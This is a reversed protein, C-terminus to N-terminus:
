SQQRIFAVTRNLGEQLPVTPTWGLGREAKSIDLYIGQIDGMKAPGHQPAGEYGTANRIAQWIQLVTTGKGNGINYATAQGNGVALVNARACDEVYIFDREQSGDGNITPAEGNLMQGAFIAVVGAEGNPDQRPGYVNAYRLVTYALGYNEHYLHLFHEVTHKTVGYPSLPMIPHNEDCPMYQPEGYIAGGSSIYIIKKVGYNVAQQLINLSGLVNIDADHLPDSVSARVNIQAAHHDVIDPREAAFVQALEASRIDVQYFTAQPNINKRHGSSLDDVVVVQYGAEVFHDVVHSGIFGAGGTVLVKM